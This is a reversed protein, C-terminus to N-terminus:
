VIFAIRRQGPSFTKNARFSVPFSLPIFHQGSLFLLLDLRFQATIGGFTSHADLRKSDHLFM